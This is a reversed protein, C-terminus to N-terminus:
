VSPAAQKKKGIAAVAINAGATIFTGLLSCIVTIITKKYEVRIRELELELDKKKQEAQTVEQRLSESINENKQIDNKFTDLKEKSGAVDSEALKIADRIKATRRSVPYQSILSNLEQTREMYRKELDNIAKKKGELNVVAVSHLVNKQELIKTAAILSSTTTKKDQSKGILIFVSYVAFCLFLFSVVWIVLRTPKNM